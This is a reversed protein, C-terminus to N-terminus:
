KPRRVPPCGLSVMYEEARAAVDVGNGGWSAVPEDEAIRRVDATWPAGYPMKRVVIFWPGGVGVVWAPLLTTHGAYGGDRLYTPMTEDNMKKTKLMASM